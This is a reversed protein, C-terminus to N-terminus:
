RGLKAARYIGGGSAVKVETFLQYTDNEKYVSTYKLVTFGRNLAGRLYYGERYYPGGGWKWSFFTLLGGERNIGM